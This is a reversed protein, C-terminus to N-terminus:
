LAKEQIDALEVGREIFRVGASELARQIASLTAKNPQVHGMEFRNATAASVEASRALDRVSWGLAARAM